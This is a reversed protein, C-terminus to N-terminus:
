VIDVINADICIWSRSFNLFYNIKSIDIEITLDKIKDFHNLSDIVSKMRRMNISVISEVFEDFIMSMFESYFDNILFFIINFFQPILSHNSNLSNYLKIM